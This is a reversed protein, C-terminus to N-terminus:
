RISFQFRFIWSGKKSQRSDYFHWGSHGNQRMAIL